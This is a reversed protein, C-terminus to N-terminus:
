VFFPPLLRKLVLEHKYRNFELAIAPVIWRARTKAISDLGQLLVAKSQPIIPSHVLDLLAQECISDLKSGCIELVSDIVWDPFPLKEKQVLNSLGELLIGRSRKKIMSLHNYAQNISQVRRSRKVSVNHM